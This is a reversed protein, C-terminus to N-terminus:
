DDGMIRITGTRSSQLLIPTNNLSVNGLFDRDGEACDYYVEAVRPTGLTRLYAAGLENASYELWGQVRLTNGSREPTGHLQIQPNFEFQLVVADLYSPTKLLYAEDTEDQGVDVYFTPTAYFTPWESGTGQGSLPELELGVIGAAVAAFHVNSFVFYGNFRADKEEEFRQAFVSRVGENVLAQARTAPFMVPEHFQSFLERPVAAIIDEPPPCVVQEQAQISTATVAAFLCATVSTRLMEIPAGILSLM